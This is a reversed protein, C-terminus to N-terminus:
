PTKYVARQNVSWEAINSFRDYPSILKSTSDISYSSKVHAYETVAQYLGIAPVDDVWQNVFTKYKANRLEPEVRSRASALADDAVKSAYNSFNYGSAVTQSSHWYAYVDPDAGIFLEYLLVDYNRTQLIGQVFNASPDSPDLVTTEVSVGLQRWQGALIELAKEYQMNKTAVVNITLPQDDKQRIGDKLIWGQSDLLAQAQAHNYASPQRVDNGIHGDIFPLSLAPVAVSLSERIAKTDTALQLAQRLAKDKLLPSTTNFLAYVGSNIPQAAVAYDNRNIQSINAGTIDSAAGVEGIRLGHVIDDQTEYAHVEFRALMPAAGYYRENAIMNVIKHQSEGKAVQQARFIFPGSGIPTRSFTNERVSGPTVDKLIHQPLVAFTLANPFAAYPAPLTFELTTDDIARVIIDRWNIRLPSRTEPHKILDVTFAVDKATLLTGDHWRANSRLKVTYVTNSPNANMGEALDGRLHGTSDYMYLSSFMLRTATIEAGTSAFLPNLTEIPGLSGEAYTGGTASATTQFDSRLWVFQVGVAAIMVGVLILWNIVHRRVSRISDLRGLIFKHAHRMTASEAKKM